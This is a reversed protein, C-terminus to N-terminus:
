RFYINFAWKTRRQVTVCLPSKFAFVAYKWDLLFASFDTKYIFLKSVIHVDTCKLSVDLKMVHGNTPSPIETTEPWRCKLNQVDSGCM